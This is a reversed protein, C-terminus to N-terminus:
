NYSLTSQKEPVTEVGYLADIQDMSGPLLKEEYRMLLHTRPYQIRHDQRIWLYERQETFHRLNRLRSRRHHQIVILEPQSKSEFFNSKM